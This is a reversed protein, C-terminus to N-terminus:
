THAWGGRVDGFGRPRACRAARRSKCRRGDYLEPMSQATETIPSHIGSRPIRRALDGAM